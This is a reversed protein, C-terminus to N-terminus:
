RTVTQRFTRMSKIGRVIWPIARVTPAWLSSYPSSWGRSSPATNPHTLMTCSAVLRGSSTKVTEITGCCLTTATPSHSYEEHVRPYWRCVEQFPVTITPPLLFPLSTILHCFTQFPALTKAVEFSSTINCPIRGLQLMPSNTGDEMARRTSLSWMNYAFTKEYM